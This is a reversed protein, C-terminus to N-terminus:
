GILFSLFHDRVAASHLCIPVASYIAVGVLSLAGALAVRRLRRNPGGAADPFDYGAALLGLVVCVLGIPALVHQFFLNYLTVIDYHRMLRDYDHIIQQIFQVAGGWRKV